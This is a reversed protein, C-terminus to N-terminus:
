RVYGVRHRFAQTHHAHYTEQTGLLPQQSPSSAVTRVCINNDSIAIGHRICGSEESRTCPRRSHAVQAVWGTEGNALQALRPGGM